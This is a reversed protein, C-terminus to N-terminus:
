IQNKKLKVSLNFNSFQRMGTLEMLIEKSIFRPTEYVHDIKPLEVELTVLSLDKYVDIEFKLGKHKVVYRIKDIKRAGKKYLGLNKIFEQKSIEKEDEQFVGPSISYKITHIYKLGTNSSAIRFRQWIGDILFYYQTIHIIEHKIKRLAEEPLNKLLFKREIELNVKKKKAM